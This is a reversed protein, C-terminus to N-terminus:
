TKAKRYQEFQLPYLKAMLDHYANTVTVETTNGAKAIEKRTISYDHRRSVYYVAGCAAAWLPRRKDPLMEYYRKVLEETEKEISHAM